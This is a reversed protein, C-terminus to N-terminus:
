EKAYNELSGIGHKPQITNNKTHFHFENHLFFSTTWTYGNIPGFGTMDIQILNSERLLKASKVFWDSNDLIILGGPKLKKIAEQSCQYRNKGDIIIVDFGDEYNLIERDYSQLDSILKIELNNYKNQSYIKEYWERDSEISVVKKAVKAWFLSSNGSGYEFVKKESFDLQKLYEIAPYTYWPIPHNDKDVCSWKSSSYLHGYDFLFIKLCALSHGLPRPPINRLIKNVISM